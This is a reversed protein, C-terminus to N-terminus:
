LKGENLSLVPDSMNSQGLVFHDDIWLNFGGLFNRTQDLWVVQRIESWKGRPINRLPKGAMSSGDEQQVISKRDTQSSISGPHGRGLTQIFFDGTEDKGLQSLQLDHKCTLAPYGVIDDM